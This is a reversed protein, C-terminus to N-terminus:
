SGLHARLVSASTGDGAVVGILERVERVTAKRSGAKCQVYVVRNGEEQPIHVIIDIGADHSPRTLEVVGVGAHGLAGAVQWELGRGDPAVAAKHERRMALEIITELQDEAETALPRTGVGFSLQRVTERLGAELRLEQWWARRVLHGRRGVCLLCLERSARKRSQVGISQALFEPIALARSPKIETETAAALFFRQLRRADGVTPDLEALSTALSNWAAPSYV